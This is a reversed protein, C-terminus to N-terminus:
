TAGLLVSVFICFDVAFGLSLFMALGRAHRRRPALNVERKEEPYATARAGGAEDDTGLPATAPDPYGVKEGTKGSDIDARLQEGSISM